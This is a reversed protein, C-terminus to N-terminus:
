LPDGNEDLAGVENPTTVIAQLVAPAIFFGPYIVGYTALQPYFARMHNRSGKQLNQWVTDIDQNDTIALAHDLDNIDLDEIIAGILLAFPLSVQGVEVAFDYLLTFVPNSFEGVQDNLVPDPLQYRQLAFAILDMHSQESAAINHFVPVQWQQFLTLYVDRALKEEERMQTLLQLEDTDVTQYPLTQIYAIVTANGGGGGGGPGGQAPLALTLLAAVFASCAFRSSDTM